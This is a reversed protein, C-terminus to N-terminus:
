DGLESGKSNLAFLVANSLEKDIEKEIQELEKKSSIKNRILYKEFTKIPDKRAMKVVEEKKRYTQEVDNISHGCLRYTLFEVFYPKKNKRVYKVVKKMNKIIEILDNGNVKVSDIGYADRVKDAFDIVSSHETVKTSQAYINNECIFIIPLKLIAAMNVAEHFIGQTTAGEGFFTVVIQNKKMRKTALAIGTSIAINAGVIGNSGYFYDKKSFLHMPGGYGKCFGNEKGLFESLIYNVDLGKAIMVHIPRHSATVIDDKKLCYNVGVPIAEQGTSLHITGWMKKENFLNIILEEFKRILVMRRFLILHDKKNM